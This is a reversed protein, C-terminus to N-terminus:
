HSDRKVEVVRIEFQVGSDSHRFGIQVVTVSRTVRFRMRELLGTVCEHVVRSEIGATIANTEPVGNGRIALQVAYLPPSRGFSEGWETLCVEIDRQYRDLARRIEAASIGKARQASPTRVPQTYDALEAETEELAQLALALDARTEALENKLREVVAPTSMPDQLKDRVVKLEAKLEFVQSTLDEAKRELKTIVSHASELEGGTERSQVFFFVAVAVAAFSVFFPAILRLRPQPRPRPAIDWLLADMSPFREEPDRSLGRLLAKHLWAPVGTDLPPRRVETTDPSKVLGEATRDKFPHQRYLAEYLAVCFSFQDSRADTDAGSFQEPAMYRPTGLVTGTKTLPHELAPPPRGAPNVGAKGAPAARPPVATVVGATPVAAVVGAPPPSEVTADPLPDAFVSRALGFDMVRVRGDKEGVLVNDPKFDRHVLGSAHAAALARGAQIFKDVVDRWNRDWQKVWRTMTDGDVFEMAIYVESKFTGYDYITVVNEHHSLQAIAQAERLLRMQGHQPSMSTDEPSRLLKLAVKRDLKPDYAAFVVGMGGSGLRNIVFFRGVQQGAELSIYANAGAPLTPSNEAMSPSRGLEALLRRCSECNAAHKEVRKIEGPSLLGDIFEVATNDDFCEEATNSHSGQLVEITGRRLETRGHDWRPLVRPLLSAM